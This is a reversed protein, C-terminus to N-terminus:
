QIQVDSKLNCKFWHLGWHSIHYQVAGATQLCQPVPHSESQKKSQGKVMSKIFTYSWFFVHQLEIWGYIFKKIAKHYMTLLDDGTQDKIRNGHFIRSINSNETVKIRFYRAYATHISLLCLAKNFLIEDYYSCLTGTLTPLSRPLNPINTRQYKSLRASM